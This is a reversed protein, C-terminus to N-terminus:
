KGSRGKKNIAVNLLYNLGESTIIFLFPSLPDRQRVGRKPSFQDTPSGNVLVSISTSNLCSLVWKIWKAGFGSKWFWNLANLLDDKIIEWYKTYFSLNFGDPGPAKNYSCSKIAALTEQENFMIELNDAMQADIKTGDWDSLKYKASGAEQLLSLFHSRAEAKIDSPSTSWTGAINAGHINNKHQRRRIVSHFFSSNEDGELAWKFRLKQKLMESQSKEKLMLTERNRIWQQRSNEDPNSTEAKIEWENIAKTLEEIEAKLICQSTSFRKRLELKVNKLKDRFICDPKYSNLKIEWAKKIIDHAEKHKLWEDFIKVPKPEFDVICDKLIIPCHDQEGVGAWKVGLPCLSIVVEPPLEFGSENFDGMLIWMSNDNSMVDNLEDWMKKKGEDTHPGYINILILDTGASKWKGKVAIFSEREVFHNATFIKTDWVTLIGGLNGKSNKVAFKHGNNGWIKEIWNEPFNRCKIESSVEDLNLSM